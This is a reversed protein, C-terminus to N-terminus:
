QLRVSVDSDNPVQGKVGNGVAGNGVVGNGVAGNGVTGNEVSVNGVPYLCFGWQVFGGSSLVGM